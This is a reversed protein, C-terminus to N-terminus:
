VVVFGDCDGGRHGFWGSNRETSERNSQDCATTAKRTAPLISVSSGANHRTLADYQSSIDMTM